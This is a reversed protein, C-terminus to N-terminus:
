NNGLGVPLRTGLDSDKGGGGRGKSDSQSDDDEAHDDIDSDSYKGKTRYRPGRKPGEESDNDSPELDRDLNKQVSPNDSDDDSLGGGSGSDSIEAESGDESGHSSEDDDSLGGGSGSDSIEAESGDESGHSSEDDTKKNEFENDSNSAVDSDSEYADMGPVAHRIEELIDMLDRMESRLSATVVLSGEKDHEQKPDMTRAIEELKRWHVLFDQHTKGPVAVTKFRSLKAFDRVEWKISESLYYYSEPTRDYAKSIQKIIEEIDTVLTSYLTTEWPM